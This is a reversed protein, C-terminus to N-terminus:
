WLTRERPFMKEMSIIGGAIMMLVGVGLGVFDFTNMLYCSETCSYYLPQALVGLVNFSDALYTSVTLVAGGVAFTLLGFGLTLHRPSVASPLWGFLVGRLRFVAVVALMALSFNLVFFNTIGTGDLYQIVQIYMAHPEYISLLGEWLVCLGFFFFLTDNFARMFPWFHSIDSASDSQRPKFRIVFFGLLSMLLGEFAIFGAHPWAFNSGWIYPTVFYAVGRKILEGAGQDAFVALGYVFLFLGGIRATLEAAVLAKSHQSNM